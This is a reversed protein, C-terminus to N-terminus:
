ELRSALLGQSASGVRLRLRLRVRTGLGLGLGLGLRFGLGAPRPEAVPDQVRHLGEAGQPLDGGLVRVM